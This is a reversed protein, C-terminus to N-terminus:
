SLTSNLFQYFFSFLPFTILIVKIRFLFSDKSIHTPQFLSKIDERLVIISFSFPIFLLPHSASFRLLNQCQHKDLLLFYYGFSNDYCYLSTSLLVYQFLFSKNYTSFNNNNPDNPNKTKHLIEISERLDRLFSIKGKFNEPSASYSISWM